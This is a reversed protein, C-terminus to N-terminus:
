GHIERLREELKKSLEDGVFRGSTADVRAALVLKGALARAIKGRLQKPAGRLSPHLYIIGHKPRKGKTKLARFYSKEAGLIQLHGATLSALEKLGGAKSILKAGLTAGALARLNPAVEKMLEDLRDEIKERLELLSLLSTAGRQIVELTGDPLEAGLSNQAEGVIQAARKKSFGLRELAGFDLQKRGGLSIIKLNERLELNLRLLEPFHLAYWETLLSALTNIYKDLNELVRTGLVISEEKRSAEKRVRAIAISRALEWLEDTPCLEPLLARLRSGGASPFKVQVEVGLKERLASALQRDESSFRKFGRAILEQALQFHEETPEGRLMQELRSLRAEKPFLKRGVEVGKDFAFVGLFCETLDAEM